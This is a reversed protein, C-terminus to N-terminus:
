VAKSVVEKLNYLFGRKKLPPNENLKQLNFQLIELANQTGVGEM